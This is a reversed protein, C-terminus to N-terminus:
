KMKKALLFFQDGTTPFIKFFRSLINNNHELSSYEIKKIFFNKSKLIFRLGRPSFHWFHQEPVWAYWDSKLFRPMLGLFNTQAFLIKGNFSLSDSLKDIFINFDKVHELVQSIIIFDFKKDKFYDSPFYGTKINIGKERGIGSASISPEIGYVNFDNALMSLLLGQGCGIELVSAGKNLNKKIIESQRILAQKWQSPM